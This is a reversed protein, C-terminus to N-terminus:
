TGGADVVLVVFFDPAAVVEDPVAVVEDVIVLVLGGIVVSMLGSVVVTVSDVGVVVLLVRGGRVRSVSSPSVDVDRLLGRVLTVRM